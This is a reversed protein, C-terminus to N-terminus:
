LLSTLTSIQDFTFSHVNDSGGGGRGAGGGGGMGVREPDTKHSVQQPFRKNNSQM